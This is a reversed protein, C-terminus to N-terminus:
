LCTKSIENWTESDISLCVLEDTSENISWLCDVFISKGTSELVIEAEILGDPKVLVGDHKDSLLRVCKGIPYLAYNHNVFVMPNFTRPNYKIYRM